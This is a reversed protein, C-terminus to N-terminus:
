IDCTKQCFSVTLKDLWSHTIIITLSSRHESPGPFYILALSPTSHTPPEPLKRVAGVVSSEIYITYLSNLVFIFYKKYLPFIRTTM